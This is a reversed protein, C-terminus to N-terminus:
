GDKESQSLEKALPIIDEIKGEVTIYANAVIPENGKPM